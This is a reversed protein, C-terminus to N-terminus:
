AGAARAMENLGFRIRQSVRGETVGFRGMIQRRTGDDFYRHVVAARNKPIRIKALLRPADIAAEIAPILSRTAPHRVIETLPTHTIPTDTERHGRKVGHFNDYERWYDKIAGRARAALVTNLGGRKPDWRPYARVCELIVYGVVDDLDLATRRLSRAIKQAMGILWIATEEDMGIITCM